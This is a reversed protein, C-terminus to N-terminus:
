IADKLRLQLQGVNRYPEQFFAMEHRFYVYPL